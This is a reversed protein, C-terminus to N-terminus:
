LNQLDTVWRIPRQRKTYYVKVFQGNRLRRIKQFKRAEGTVYTKWFFVLFKPLDILLLKDM